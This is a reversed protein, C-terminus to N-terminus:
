QMSQQYQAKAKLFDDYTETFVHRGSNDPALVYYLYGTTAPNLAADISSASPNCIPGPPLGPNKYTNYPSDVKLDDYTLRDKWQPLAYQVTADIQLPMSKQLRNYIVSAVQPREDDVRTEREILSAIVIIEYPSRGLTTTNAWNLSETEKQFQSLQMHLFQDANIDKQVKYTQPYLYGELSKTPSGNSKLFPYEIAVQGNTIMNLYAAEDIKTVAAIRAAIQKATWGEPITIDVYVIPPGATLTKIVDDDNMGTKLDYKGPKFETGVGQQKVALRFLFANKIVKRDELLTAIQQATMGKEIEVQVPM